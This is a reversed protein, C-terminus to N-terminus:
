FIYDLAISYLQASEGNPTDTLGYINTKGKPDFYQWELKLAINDLVDFRSGLTISDQDITSIDMFSQFSNALQTGLDNPLTPTAAGLTDGALKLAALQNVVKSYDEDSEIHEVTIYPTWFDAVTYALSLYGGKLDYAVGTSRREAYEAMILFDGLTLKIGAAFFEGGFENIDFEKSIDEFGLKATTTLATNITSLGSLSFDGTTYGLRFNAWEYNFRINLGSLNRARLTADNGFVSQDSKNSGFFPQLNLTADGMPVRVIMDVGDLQDFDLQGYVAIPPRAWPYSYGVELSQSIMYLPLRLRGTKISIYQNAKFEAYAWGAEFEYDNEGRSMLQTTFAVKDNIPANIQVSILSDPSFSYDTNADGFFVESDNTASVAATAFGNINLDELSMASSLQSALLLTLYQVLLRPKLM